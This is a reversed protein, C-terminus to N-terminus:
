KKKVKQKHYVSGDESEISFNRNNNTYRAINKNNKYYFIAFFFEM